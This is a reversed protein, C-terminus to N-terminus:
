IAGDGRVVRAQKLGLHTILRHDGRSRLDLRYQAEIRDLRQYLTTRHIYLRAATEQVSGATDLFTEATSALGDDRLLDRVRPDIVSGEAERMPLLALVRFVGLSDWAAVPGLDPVARVLRLARRAQAYSQSASELETAGGVGAVTEVGHDIHGALVRAKEALHMVPALDGRSRLAVLLVGLGSIAGALAGATGPQEAARQVALELDNAIVEDANAGTTALVIVAVPGNPAFTGLARAEAAAAENEPNPVLLLRLLDADVQASLRRRYIVAGIQNAAEIAPGLEAETMTGADLVWIYGLHRGGYWMPVCWREHVGIRPDAPTRLPGQAGRIGWQEFWARVHAQLHRHMIAYQRVDDIVDHATHALLRLDRDDLSVPVRLEAALCDLIAQVDGSPM